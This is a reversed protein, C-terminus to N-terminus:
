AKIRENWETHSEILYELGKKKVFIINGTEETERLVGEDSCEVVVDRVERVRVQKLVEAIVGGFKVDRVSLDFLMECEFDMSEITFLSENVDLGWEKFLEEIKKKAMEGAIELHQTYGIEKRKRGRQMRQKLDESIQRGM